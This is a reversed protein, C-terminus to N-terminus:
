AARGWDRRSQGFCEPHFSAESPTSVLASKKALNPYVQVDDIWVPPTANLEIRGIGGNMNGGPAALLASVFLGLDIKVTRWEVPRM